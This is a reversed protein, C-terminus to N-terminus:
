LPDNHKDIEYLPCPRLSNWRSNEGRRYFWWWLFRWDIEKKYL